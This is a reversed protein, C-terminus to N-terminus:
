RWRTENATNSAEVVPSVPKYIRLFDGQFDDRWNVKMQYHEFAFKQFVELESDLKVRHCESNGLLFVRPHDVMALALDPIGFRRKVAENIPSQQLWGLCYLHVNRYSEPSELPLISEYPFRDGWCIFLEDPQPDIRARDSHLRHNGAVAISSERFTLSQEMLVALVAFAMSAWGGWRTLFVSTAGALLHSRNNSSESQNSITSEGCRMLFLMYLGQFAFLPYYVRAPPNKLQMLGTIILDISVTLILLHIVLFRPKRAQFVLFPILLWIPLLLPNKLIELWWITMRRLSFASRRWPFGEVIPQLASRGFVNPDDFFYKRIMAHDNESWHVGDFVSRTEESYGTLFYDNFMVRYPNFALFETWAPDQRYYTLHAAHSGAAAAHCLAFILLATKWMRCAPLSSRDWQWVFISLPVASIAIAALYADFRVFSGLVLLLMGAVLMGVAQHGQTRRVVENLVLFIGCETSWVAVSTFQLRTILQVGVTAFLLFYCIAVSRRFRWTLLAHLVAVQALYIVSMLYIAYWPLSPFWNYLQKLFLGISVNTFVLHEDPVMCAGTGSVIMSMLVDDNTEYSPTYLSLVMAFLLAVIGFSAILPNGVAWREIYTEPMPLEDTQIPFRSESM